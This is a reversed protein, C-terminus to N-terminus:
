LVALRSAPYITDRGGGGGRTWHHLPQTARECCAQNLSVENAKNMSYILLIEEIIRAGYTNYSLIM